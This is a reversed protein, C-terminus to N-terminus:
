LHQPSTRQREHACVACAFGSLALVAVWDMTKPVTEAVFTVDWSSCSLANGSQHPTVVSAPAAACLGSCANNTDAGVM